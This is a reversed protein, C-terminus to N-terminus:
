SSSCRGAVTQWWVYGGTERAAQLRWPWGLFRIDLTVVASCTRWMLSDEQEGGGCGSCASRRGHWCLPVKRGWVKSQHCGRTGRSATCGWLLQNSRHEGGQDQGMPHRPEQPAQLICYGDHLVYLSHKCEVVHICCFPVCQQSSDLFGLASVVQACVAAIHTYAALLAKQVAHLAKKCSSGHVLLM